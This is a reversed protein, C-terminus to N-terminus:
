MANLVSLEGAERGCQNQGFGKIAQHDDLGDARKLEFRFRSNAVELVVGGFGLLKDLVERHRLGNLIDTDLNKWEINRTDAVAVVDLFLVTKEGVVGEIQGDHSMMAESADRGVVGIEFAHDVEQNPFRDLRM